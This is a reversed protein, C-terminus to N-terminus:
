GNLEDKGQRTTMLVLLFVVCLPINFPFNTTTARNLIIKHSWKPSKEKNDNKITQKYIIIVHRWTTTLSLFLSRLFFRGWMKLRHEREIITDQQASRLLKNVKRTQCYNLSEYEKGNGVTQQKIWWLHNFLPIKPASSPHTQTSILNNLESTSQIMRDRRSSSWCIGQRLSASIGTFETFVCLGSVVNWSLAEVNM